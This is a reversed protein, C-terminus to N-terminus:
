VNPPRAMVCPQAQIVRFGLRAYWDRLTNTNMPEDEFPEPVVLLTMGHDNAIAILRQMLATAHRKGRSSADCVLGSVERLKPRLEPAVLECLGVRCRAPGETYDGTRM